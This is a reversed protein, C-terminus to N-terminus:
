GLQGQFGDLRTRLEDLRQQIENKESGEDVGLLLYAITAYGVEAKSRLRQAAKHDGMRIETELLDAFTFCIDLDTKLFDIRNRQSRAHLEALTLPM